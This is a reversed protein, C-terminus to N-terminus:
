EPRNWCRPGSGDRRPLAIEIPRMDQASRGVLVPGPKLQQELVTIKLHGIAGTLVAQRDLGGRSLRIHTADAPFQNLTPDAPLWTSRNPATEVYVEAWAHYYFAGQVHVLGVAIRAPIGVARALAVYLATHENCDGVRTRLVELASPLSVTPKKELLHNVHRVLREARARDGTVGQVAKQAEAVIEPADSELFPEPSLFRHAEPDPGPAVTEAPRIEFVDDVVTQGAGQLDEDAFHAGELRLRLLEVSGPDDIRKLGQPIVAAAQLLDGQVDGPVALATAREQTERLVVLGMPSEEKVAEGVDTIWSTSTLGAFESKIRFAPVPRGAAWVVERAQVELNMPANRLTAPDFASVTLHMGPALGAAALRRPINLALAPAEELQLTEHRSGSPTKITLELRTGDLAGAIEIAGTGPDLSFSFSRLV